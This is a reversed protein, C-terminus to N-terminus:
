IIGNAKLLRLDEKSLGLEGVYIDENHEGILPARHLSKIPTESFQAFPGPYVIVDRLEDHKIEVWFNRAKLQPSEVTEKSDYVPYLGISRKVAEDRIEAKTKTKLFNAIPEIILQLEEKTTATWDWKGWNKEELYDTAKGEETMWEVMKKNNREGPQGALILFNCYGDKCEWIIPRDPASPRVHFRGPRKADHKLFTWEPIVEGGPWLVSEMASVDIYQGEGTTQRYSHAIMMAAAADAGANLYSQPFSVQVPPRDPDGCQSMLMGMAFIVIDSAKYNAYPGTQGFPTISAMIIRPNIKSLVSYGLDLSEMHKPSFSEVVFDAGKALRKFIERGDNTEINLTISKKNTNYAFWFLSKEPDVINHYFPGINRAPDGGPREVKIVEAGLDAFIKGCLLGKEDTLDLVRYSSLLGEARESKKGTNM